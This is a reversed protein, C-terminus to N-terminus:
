KWVERIDRLFTPRPGMSIETVWLARIKLKASTRPLTHRADRSYFSSLRCHVGFCFDVASIIASMKRHERRTDRNRNQDAANDSWESCLLVAVTLIIDLIAGAEIARVTGATVTLAVTDVTYIQPTARKPTDGGIIIQRLDDGLPNRTCRHGRRVKGATLDKTENTVNSRQSVHLRTCGLPAIGPAPLSQELAVATAQVAMSDGPLSAADTRVKGVDAQDTGSRVQLLRQDRGVCNNKRLVARHSGDCPIPGVLAFLVIWIALLFHWYVACLEVSARVRILTAGSWVKFV